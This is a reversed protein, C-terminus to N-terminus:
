RPRWVQAAHGAVVDPDEVSEVSVRLASPTIGEVNASTSDPDAAVVASRPTGVSIGCHVCSRVFADIPDNWPASKKAFLEGCHPCRFYDCHVGVRLFGRLAPVRHVMGLSRSMGHGCRRDAVLRSPHVVHDRTAPPPKGMAVHYGGRPKARSPRCANRSTADGRRWPDHRWAARRLARPRWDSRVYARV